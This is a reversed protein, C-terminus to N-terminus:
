RRRRWPRHLCRDTEMLHWRDAIQLANPRGRAAAQGYATAAPYDHVRNILEETIAQSMGIGNLGLRSTLEEAEGLSGNKLRAMLGTGGGSQSGGPYDYVSSGYSVFLAAGWSAAVFLSATRFALPRM